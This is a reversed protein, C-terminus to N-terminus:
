APPSIPVPPFPVVYFGLPVEAWIPWGVELLFMKFEQPIDVDRLV